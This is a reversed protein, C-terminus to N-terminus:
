YMKLQKNQEGGAKKKGLPKESIFQMDAEEILELVRFDKLKQYQKDLNKHLEEKQKTLIQMRQKKAAVKKKTEDLLISFNFFYSQFQFSSM